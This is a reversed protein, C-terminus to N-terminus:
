TDITTMNANRDGVAIGVPIAHDLEVLDETDLELDIAGINEELYGMRKTGPIPVINDGQHLVWAIAIQAPTVGKQQALAEVAEIIPLNRLLNDRQFRPHRRRGDDEAFDPSKVRGTLFGRGLPSYSVFGIGLERCAPLIDTEPDRTWLSYETQLASIPCVRQARRLTKPSVESLGLFRVKGQQILESM